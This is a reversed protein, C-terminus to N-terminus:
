NAQHDCATDVSDLPKTLGLKSRGSRETLPIWPYKTLM